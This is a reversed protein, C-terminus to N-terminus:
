LFSPPVIHIGLNKMAFDGVAIFIGPRCALTSITRRFVWTGGARPPVIVISVFAFPIAALSVVEEWACFGPRTRFTRVSLVVVLDGELVEDREQMGEITHGPSCLLAM